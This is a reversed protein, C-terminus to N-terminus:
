SLKDESFAKFYDTLQNRVKVYMRLQQQKTGKADAPDIFSHHIVQNAKPYIPCIEKANDCVTFVYDFDIDTYENVHNSTNKLIDIGIEAMAKIAFPNVKEPKTGASYVKTNTSFCSLLGEAMQSRCSNGTCLILVKRM